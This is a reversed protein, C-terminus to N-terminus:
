FLFLVVVAAVVDYFATRHTHNKCSLFVFLFTQLLLAVSFVFENEHQKCLYSVIVLIYYLGTFFTYLRYLMIQKRKQKGKKEM